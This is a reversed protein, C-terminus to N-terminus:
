PAFSEHRGFHQRVNPMAEAGRVYEAPTTGARRKFSRIFHAQDAYGAAAAVDAWSRRRGLQGAVRTFRALSAFEKPAVGVQQRFLRELQRRGVGARDAIAEVREGGASSEIRRVGAVLDPHPERRREHLSLLWRLVAAAAAEASGGAVQRQAEAAAPAVDALAVHRDALEDMSAHLLAYAGFPTFRVLVSGTPGDPLFTRATSQIATIGARALGHIGDARVVSLRGRFQFGVVPTLGPLILYPPPVAVAGTEHVHVEAVYPALMPPVSVSTPRM